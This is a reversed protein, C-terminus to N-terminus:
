EFDGIIKINDNIVLVAQNDTITILDYNAQNKLSEIIEPDKNQYHPIVAFNVFNMGTTDLLNVDNEDFPEAVEINPGVVISGASMGVYVGQYDILLKDFGSKRIQQLLYFTNGGCVYIVDAYEIEEKSVIHDLELININNIGIEFLEDISDEILFIGSEYRSAATPIFLLNIENLPKEFLSIFIDTIDNNFFGASTLLLKKM